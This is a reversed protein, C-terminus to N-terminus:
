YCLICRIYTFKQKKYENCSVINWKLILWEICNSFPDASQISKWFVERYFVSDQSASAFPPTPVGWPRDSLQNCKWSLWRVLFAVTPNLIGWLPHSCGHSWPSGQLLLALPRSLFIKAMFGRLSLLLMSTVWSILSCWCTCYWKKCSQGNKPSLISWILAVSHNKLSLILKFVAIVSSIKWQLWKSGECKMTVKLLHFM